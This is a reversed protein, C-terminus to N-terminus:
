FPLLYNGPVVGPESLAYARRSSDSASVDDSLAAVGARAGKKVEGGSLRFGEGGSFGQRGAGRRTTQLLGLAEERRSSRRCVTLQAGVIAAVDFGGLRASPRMRTPVTSGCVIILFAHPM